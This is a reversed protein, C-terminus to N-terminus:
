VSQMVCKLLLKGPHVNYNTETTHVGTKKGSGRSYLLFITTIIIIIYLFFQL